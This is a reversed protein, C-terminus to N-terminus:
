HHNRDTKKLPDKIETFTKVL